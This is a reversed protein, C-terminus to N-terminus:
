RCFRVFTGTPLGRGAKDKLILEGSEFAQKPFHSQILNETILPSFGMSYLNILFFAHEKELLEACMGTLENIQKEL